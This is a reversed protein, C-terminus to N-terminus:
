HHNASIHHIKRETLHPWTTVPFHVRSGGRAWVGFHGLSEFHPRYWESREAMEEPRRWQYPTVSAGGEM